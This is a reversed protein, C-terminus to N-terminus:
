YPPATCHVTASNLCWMKVQWELSKSGCFFVNAGQGDMGPSIDELTMRRTFFGVGKPAATDMWERVGRGVAGSGPTGAGNTVFIQLASWDDPSLAGSELLHQVVKFDEQRISWCLRPPLYPEHRHRRKAAARALFCAVGTGGAVCVAGEDMQALSEPTFGGGVDVIDAKLPGDPRPLGMLGSVRGNTTMLTIAKVLGDQNVEIDCPTFSLRRHDEALGQGGLIPDFDAHFQLTIHQSPRINLATSQDSTLVFQHMSTSPTIRHSWSLAVAALPRESDIAHTTGM